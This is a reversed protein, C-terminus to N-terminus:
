DAPPPGLLDWPSAAGDAARFGETPLEPRLPPATPATDRAPADPHTDFWALGVPDLHQRARTVAVYALRAEEPLIPTPVPRGHADTEESPAPEFDPAIQVTPWERGKAKHATSIVIQADDEESLKRVAALIVEVGHEDIIDVLPMLDQGSPDFEAYDQLEGWTSFLVLEPHSARRGAKLQGAAIALDELAKGGGVLAVRRNDALLEMVAVMAGVNTRCLIADPSDVPGITTTIAPTGRLRIPSEVLTLWRNAEQALAPGFRFSQSLALQEGDFDAMVDRAGRWGYIAQASDGVMVLQAHTRQANFVEELVPNTDQAEDLLLYDGHITPNNLAWMKLYHDHEFRMAGGAPNQLDEWARRAYPLVFQALQYHLDEEHLGRLRPVHTLRLATDASYCFRRVTRVMAYALGKNTVTRDGIRLQTKPTIGLDAASRWAPKRPSRLRKEFSRGAQEYALSHATRCAVNRSFKAAADAAIAKNFAIYRGQRRDARALMTLTTTKGTGAGAQLALHNGSRFVEVAVEQEATPRRFAATPQRAPWAAGLDSSPGPAGPATPAPAALEALWTTAVEVARRVLEVDAGARSRVGLRRNIEANVAGHSLASARALQGVLRRLEALPIWDTSGSKAPQPPAPDAPRPSGNFLPLRDDPEPSGQSRSSPRSL